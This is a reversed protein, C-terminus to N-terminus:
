YECQELLPIGVDSRTYRAEGDVAQWMELRSIVYGLDGRIVEHPFDDKYIIYVLPEM